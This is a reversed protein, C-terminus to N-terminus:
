LKYMQLLWPRAAALNVLTMTKAFSPTQVDHNVGKTDTFTKVGGRCDIGSCAEGKKPMRKPSFWKIGGGTPDGSMPLKLIREAMAKSGPTAASGSADGFADRAAAVEKVGSRIMQNRVAWAIAEKESANGEGMESEIIVALADVNATTFHFHDTGPGGPGQFDRVKVKVAPSDHKGGGATMLDKGGAIAYKFPELRHRYEGDDVLFAGIKSFLKKGDWTRSYHDLGKDFTKRGFEVGGPGVYKSFGDGRVKCAFTVNFTVKDDPKEIVTQDATHDVIVQGPDMDAACAAKETQTPPVPTQTPDPTPVQQPAADPPEVEKSCGRSNCGPICRQLGLGSKLRPLANAAADRWRERAGGWLSRVVSVATRDADQEFAGAEADGSAM